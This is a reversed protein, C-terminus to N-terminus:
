SFNNQTSEHKEKHKWRNRNLSTIFKSLCPHFRPDTFICHRPMDLEYNRPLRSTKRYTNSTKPWKKNNPVLIRLPISLPSFNLPFCVRLHHFAVQFMENKEQNRKFNNEKHQKTYHAGGSTTAAFISSFVRFRSPTQAALRGVVIPTTAPISTWFTNFYTLSIKRLLTVRKQYFYICTM